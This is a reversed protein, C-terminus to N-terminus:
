VIVQSDTDVLIRMFGKTEGKEKARAVKHMPYIAELINIGQELAEKKTLGARGLPPDVYLAYTLIRDSVKRDKDDFANAAIIEYDNYSTHTGARRGNCEKLAYNAPMNTEVSKNVTIRGHANTKVGTKELNLGATNPTRSADLRLPSARV